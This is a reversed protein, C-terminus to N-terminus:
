RCSFIFWLFIGQPYSGWGCILQFRRPQRRVMRWNSWQMMDPCPGDSQASLETVRLSGAFYILTCDWGTHVVAKCLGQAACSPKHGQHDHPFCFKGDGDRKVSTQYRASFSTAWIFRRAGHSEIGFCSNPIIIGAESDAVTHVSKMKKVKIKNNFWIQTM